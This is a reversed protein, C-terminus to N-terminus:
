RRNQVLMVKRREKKGELRKDSGQKRNETDQEGCRQKDEETDLIERRRERWREGMEEEHRCCTKRERENQIRGMEKERERDKIM